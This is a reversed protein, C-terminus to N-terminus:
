GWHREEQTFSLIDCPPKIFTLHSLAGLYASLISACLNNNLFNWFEVPVPYCDMRPLAILQVSVCAYPTHM